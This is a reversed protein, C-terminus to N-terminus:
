GAGATDLPRGISGRGRSAVLPVPCPSAACVSRVTRARNAQLMGSWALVLLDARLQSAAGLISEERAGTALEVRVPMGPSVRRFRRGFDERWDSWDYCLHDIM